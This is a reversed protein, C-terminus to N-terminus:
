LIITYCNELITFYILRRYFSITECVVARQLRSEHHNQARTASRLIDDGAPGDSKATLLSSSCARKKQLPGVVTKGSLSGRFPSGCYIIINLWGQVIALVTATINGVDCTARLRAQRLKAISTQIM